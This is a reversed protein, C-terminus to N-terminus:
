KRVKPLDALWETADAALKLTFYKRTDSAEKVESISRITLQGM